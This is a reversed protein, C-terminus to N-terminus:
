EPVQMGYALIQFNTVDEILEQVNGKLRGM